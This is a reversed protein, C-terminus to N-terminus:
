HIALVADAEPRLPNLPPPKEPPPPPPPPPPEQHGGGSIAGLGFPARIVSEPPGGGDGSSLGAASACSSVPRSGLGPIIGSGLEMGGPVGGGPVTAGAGAGGAGLRLGGGGLPAAGRRGGCRAPCSVM